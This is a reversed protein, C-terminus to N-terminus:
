NPKDTADTPTGVIDKKVEAYKEKASKTLDDVSESLSKVIKQLDISYFFFKFFIEPIALIIKFPLILHFYM